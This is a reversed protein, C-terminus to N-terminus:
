AASGKAKKTVKTKKSVSGVLDNAQKEKKDAEERLMEAEILLNKAIVEKEKPTNATILPTKNSSKDSGMLALLESLAIPHGSHPTMVVATIPVSILKGTTHLYNLVSGGSGNTLTKRSLFTGLDKENQAEDSKVLSNLEDQIMDPLTHVAVVL